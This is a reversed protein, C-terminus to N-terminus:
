TNLPSSPSSFLSTTASFTFTTLLFSKLDNIIATLSKSKSKAEIISLGIPTISENFSSFPRFSSAFAINSSALEDFYLPIKCAVIELYTISNESSPPSPNAMTTGSSTNSESSEDNIEQESVTLNNSDNIMIPVSTNVSESILSSSIIFLTILLTILLSLDNFEVIILAVNVLKISLSSM